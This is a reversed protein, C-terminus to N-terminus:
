RSSLPSLAIGRRPRPRRATHSGGRRHSWRRTAASATTRRSSTWRCSRCPRGRARVVQGLEHALLAARHHAHCAGGRAHRDRQLLVSHAEGLGAAPHALVVDLEQDQVLGLMVVPERAIVGRADEVVLRQDDWGGLLRQVSIQLLASSASQSSVQQTGSTRTTHVWSSWTARVISTKRSRPRSPDRRTPKFRM